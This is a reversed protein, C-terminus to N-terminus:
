SRFISVAHAAPLKAKSSSLKGTLLGAIYLCDQATVDNTHIFPHQFVM